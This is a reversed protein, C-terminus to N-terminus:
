EFVALQVSLSHDPDDVLKTIKASSKSCLAGQVQQLISQGFTAYCDDTKNALVRRRAVRDGAGLGNVGYWDPKM